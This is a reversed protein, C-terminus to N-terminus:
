SCDGPLPLSNVALARTAGDVVWRAGPNELAAQYVVEAPDAVLAGCAISRRGTYPSLFSAPPPGPWNVAGPEDATRAEVEYVVVRDPSYPMRPAGATLAAARSIITRLAVRASRQEPTLRADFREDFAYPNVRQEGGPGYMMVTTSPLDTMRPTGFDTGSNILGDAEVDAVFSTVAAPDIRAVEYRTPILQLAPSEVATLVRGDGYIALSPSALAQYVAPAMGGSSMVMFVMQEAPLNAAPTSEADPSCGTMVLLSVVSGLLRRKPMVM